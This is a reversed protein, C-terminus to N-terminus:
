SWFIFLYLISLTRRVGNNGSTAGNNPLSGKEEDSLMNYHLVRLHKLPNSTSGSLGSWTTECHNCRITNENIRKTCHKWIISPSKRHYPRPPRTIEDDEEAQLRATIRDRNAQLGEEIVRVEDFINARRARQDADDYDEPVRKTGKVKKQLKRPM